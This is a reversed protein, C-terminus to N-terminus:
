FGEESPLALRIGAVFEWNASKYGLQDLHNDALAVYADAIGELTALREAPDSLQDVSQRRHDLYRLGDKWYHNASLALVTFRLEKKPSSLGMEPNSTIRRILEMIDYREAGEKLELDSHVEEDRLYAIVGPVDGSLLKCGAGLLNRPTQLLPEEIRSVVSQAAQRCGTELLIRAVKLRAEQSNMRIREQLLTALGEPSEIIRMLRFLRYLPPNLGPNFQVTKVYCDIAAAFERGAEYSVGLLYSTQYTGMGDETHYSPVPEGLKLAQLLAEKAEEREGQILHFIGKLHHLDTYDPYDQIGQECIQLAEPLQGLSRLTAAEYKYLLHVYGEKSPDALTRSKRFVELAKPAEGLRLYEVGLNFLHFAHDPQDALSQKLLDVNRGIKNKGIVIEPRYGYHHIKIDTIHFRCDPKHRYISTAIQEHIRSEFRVAPDNRFMRVVTNITIGQQSPQGVHNYIKLLFADIEKHQACIRLQERGAQDLEEDADLYLIWDGAAADLGKNRAQAFDGQWPFHIVQAGYQRAILPSGDSSGTDVIIIEDVVEKVSELCRSLHQAEDKVIMCLSISPRYM